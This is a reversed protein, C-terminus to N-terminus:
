LVKVTRKKFREFADIIEDSEPVPKLMFGKDRGVDYWRSHFDPLGKEINMTTAKSMRERDEILNLRFIALFDSESIMMPHCWAPRQSLMIMEIHKSRGQTLLAKMAKSTRPIMYGEDIYLGIDEQKWCQWLFQEIWADHLEPIPHIVYLGPERPPKSGFPLEQAPLEAILPDCKPDMIVWPRDLINRTSLLWTAFQSKGSGTSGTIFTRRTADPFRFGDSM